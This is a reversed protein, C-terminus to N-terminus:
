RTDFAPQCRPACLTRITTPKRCSTSGAPEKKDKVTEGRTVTTFVRDEEPLSALALCLLVTLPVVAEYHIRHISGGKSVEHLTQNWVHYLPYPKEMTYLLIVAQYVPALPDEVNVRQFVAQLIETVKDTTLRQSESCDATLPILLTVFEELLKQSEELMKEHIEAVRRAVTGEEDVLVGACLFAFFMDICGDDADNLNDSQGSARNNPLQRRLLTAGFPLTAANGLEKGADEVGFPERKFFFESKDNRNKVRKLNKKQGKMKCKLAFFFKQHGSLFAKAVDSVLFLAAM